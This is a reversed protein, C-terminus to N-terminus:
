VIAAENANTCVIVADAPALPVIVGDPATGTTAPRSVVNAIAGAAFKATSSTRTSPTETPATVDYVNEFTDADCV